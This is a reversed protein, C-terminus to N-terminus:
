PTLELEIGSNIIENAFPNMDSFDAVNILHAEIRLDIRRGLRVQLMQTAFFDTTNGFVLAIDIESDERDTGKAYSGFLYAKKIKLEKPIQKLYNTATEIISKKVM